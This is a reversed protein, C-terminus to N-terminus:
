SMQNPAASHFSIGLSTVNTVFYTESICANGSHIRFVRQVGEKRIKRECKLKREIRLYQATFNTAFFQDIRFPFSDAIHGLVWDHTDRLAAAVVTWSRCHFDLHLVLSISCIDDLEALYM